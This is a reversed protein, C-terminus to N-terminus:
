RPQGGRILDWTLPTGRPIDKLVTRGLVEELHRTHLGHGPRIARVNERTLVEGAKMDRVVFLSRRFIRSASESPSPGYQITGLAKEAVRVAQVMARFEEPELSFPSDPGPIQRSLTLHKEILCAGLTVAAVPVALELSHDSLGVPVGFTQALHPITYLNMDAPPAPYASTCKLLALQRGGADKLTQVAEEIEALTAM